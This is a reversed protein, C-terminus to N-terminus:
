CGRWSSSTKKRGVFRNTCHTGLFLGASTLVVSPSLMRSTDLSSAGSNHGCRPQSVHEVTFYGSAMFTVECTLM